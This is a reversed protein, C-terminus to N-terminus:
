DKWMESILQKDFWDRDPSQPIPFPEGAQIKARLERLNFQNPFWKSDKAINLASHSKDLPSVGKDTKRMPEEVFHDEESEYTMMRRDYRFSFKNSNGLAIGFCVDEFGMGDCLDEPFGNVELPAEIPMALSCGYLLSGGCSMRDQTAWRLRSDEGGPHPEFSKVVGNEVVLKKVKKYAGLAIYNERMSQKVCDLWGPMLVSLDDVFAIHPHKALCIFSNRSSAASWWHQKPLRHPGSWINPKPVSHVIEVNPISLSLSRDEKHFDVVVLQVSEGNLQNALSDLFWQIRPEKRSTFYGISLNM